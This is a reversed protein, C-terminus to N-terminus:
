KLARKPSKKRLNALYRLMDYWFPAGMSVCLVTILLGAIKASWAAFGHIPSDREWGVPIGTKLLQDQVSALQEMTYGSPDGATDNTWRVAMDAIGSREKPHGMLWDAMRFTDANSPLIILAAILTLWIRVLRKYQDTMRGQLVKFWKKLQSAIRKRDSGSGSPFRAWVRQLEEPYLSLIEKNSSLDLLVNAFLTGPIREPFRRGEKELRSVLHHRLIASWVVDAGDTSFTRIIWRKLLRGRFNFLGSLVELFASCTISLIFYIFILGVVLDLFSFSDM